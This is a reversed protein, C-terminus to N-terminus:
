PRGGQDPVLPAFWRILEDRNPPDFGLLTQFEKRAAELNKLHLEGRVLLQRTQVRNPNLRIAARSEDTAGRWDRVQSLLLALEAHYLERWPNIAIARRWYAIADERRGAFTAQYAAHMLTSERNPERTLATRFAALAEERRGLRGLVIGKSEWATVDDPRGLLAAELLPLAAAASGTWDDCLALGVGVDREVEAREREDM